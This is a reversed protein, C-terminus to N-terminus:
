ASEVLHKLPLLVFEVGQFVTNQLFLVVLVGFLELRWKGWLQVRVREFHVSLFVWGLGEQLALQHPLLESLAFLSNQLSFLLLPIFRKGELWDRKLPRPRLALVEVM